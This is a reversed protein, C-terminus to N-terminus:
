NNERASLVAAMTPPTMPPIRPRNITVPIMKPTTKPTLIYYVHSFLPTHLDIIVHIHYLIATWQQHLLVNYNNNNLEKLCEIAPTTCPELLFIHYTYFFFIYNYYSSAERITGTSRIVCFKWACYSIYLKEGLSKYLIADPSTRWCLSHCWQLSYSNKNM